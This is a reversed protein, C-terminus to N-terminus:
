VTDGYDVLVADESELVPSLASFALHTTEREFADGEYM